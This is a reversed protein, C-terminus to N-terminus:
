SPRKRNQGDVGRSASGSFPTRPGITATEVAEIEVELSLIIALAPELTELPVVLDSVEPARVAILREIYDTGDVGAMAWRREIMHVLSAHFPLM